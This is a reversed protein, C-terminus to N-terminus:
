QWSVVDDPAQSSTPPHFKGRYTAGGLIGDKGLSFTAVGSGVQNEAGTLDSYITGLDLTTDTDTEIVNCYQRGWPDFLCGQIAAPFNPGDAFGGRPAALDKAIADEHYVVRKPSLAHGSNAGRPIARLVNFLERNSIQAGAARDGIFIFEEGNPRPKGIQPYHGYDTKYNRVALVINGMTTHALSRRVDGGHDFRPFLLVIMVTVTLLVFIGALVRIGSSGAEHGRRQM